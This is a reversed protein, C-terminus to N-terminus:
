GETDKNSSQVFTGQRLEKTTHETVSSPSYKDFNYINEQPLAKIEVNQIEQNEEILLEAIALDTTKSRFKIRGYSIIMIGAILFLAGFISLDKLLRGVDVNFYKKILFGIIFIAASYLLGICIVILGKSLFNNWEKELIFSQKIQDLNVINSNKALIITKKVFSINTGCVNCFNREDNCQTGCSPCYM